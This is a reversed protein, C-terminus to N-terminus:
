TRVERMTALNLQVDRLHAHGCANRKRLWL